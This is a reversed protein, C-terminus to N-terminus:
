GDEENDESLISTFYLAAKGTLKSIIDDDVKAGKAKIAKSLAAQADAKSVRTTKKETGNTSTTTVTKKIYCGDKSLIMRVGNVTKDFHEAVEKVCEMSNEPTPDLEKYAEIVEQKLEDTWENAM